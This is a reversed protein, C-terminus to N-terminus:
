IMEKGPLPSFASDFVGNTTKKGVMQLVGFGVSASKGNLIHRLLPIDLIM